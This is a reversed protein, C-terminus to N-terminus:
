QIGNARQLERIYTIIEKVEDQSVGKIAPMDGFPWHHGRVGNAVAAYFTRDAHHSPVYIQHILPPALGNVGAASDGHCDACNADFIAKGILAQESMTAPVLVSAVPGGEEIHSLSTSAKETPMRM